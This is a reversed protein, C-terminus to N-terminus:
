YFSVELIENIINKAIKRKRNDTILSIKLIYVSVLLMLLKVKTCELLITAYEAGEHLDAILSYDNILCM